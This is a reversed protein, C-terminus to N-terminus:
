SGECVHLRHLAEGPGREGVVRRAQGLPGLAVGVIGALPEGVLRTGGCRWCVRRRSHGM